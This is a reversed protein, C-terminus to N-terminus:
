LPMLIRKEWYKYDLLARKRPSTTVISFAKELLNIDSLDNIDDLIIVPLESYLDYIPYNDYRIVVPVRGAYLVEWLRHTDIGNGIPCLVMKYELLKDFFQAVTLVPEDLDIHPVNKIYDYLLQRHRPNTSIKFNAYMFKSRVKDPISSLLNLKEGASRYTVGHGRRNAFEHNEIGLPIPVIKPHNLLANQAYWCVVNEPIKHLFKDDVPLDSNGTVLVVKHDLRRIRELDREILDIKCVFVKVGDHLRFFKNFQIIEDNYRKRNTDINLIFSLKQISWLFDNILLRVIRRLSKQIASIQM